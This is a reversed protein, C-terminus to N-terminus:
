DAMERARTISLEDAESRRKRRKRRIRLLIAVISSVVGIWFLFLMSLDFMYEWNNM